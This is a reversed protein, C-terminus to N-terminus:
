FSARRFSPLFILVALREVACHSYRMEAARSQVVFFIVKDLLQEAAQTDDLDFVLRTNSM